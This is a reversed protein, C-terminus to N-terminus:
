HLDKIEEANPLEINEPLPKHSSSSSTQASVYESEPGLIDYQDTMIGAMMEHFPKDLDCKDAKSIKTLITDMLDEKYRLKPDVLRSFEIPDICNIRKTFFDICDPYTLEMKLLKNQVKLFLSRDNTVLAVPYKNDTEHGRYPLFYVEEKQLNTNFPFKLIFLDVKDNWKKIIQLPKKINNFAGIFGYRDVITYISDTM